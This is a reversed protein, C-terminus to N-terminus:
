WFGNGGDEGGSDDGRPDRPEVKMTETDAVGLEQGAANAPATTSSTAAKPPGTPRPAPTVPLALRINPTRSRTRTTVSMTVLRFAQQIDAARLAPVMAAPDGGVFALLVSHDCDGGIPIALRDCKSSRGTSVFADLPVKWEDTPHGDSALLLIPRYGDKKITDRDEVLAKAESIAAGM